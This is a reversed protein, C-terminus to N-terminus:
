DCLDNMGLGVEWGEVGKREWCGEKGLGKEGEEGRWQCFLGIDCCFIGGKEGRCDWLKMGCEQEM